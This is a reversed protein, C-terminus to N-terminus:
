GLYGVTVLPTSGLPPGGHMVDLIIWVIIALILFLVYFQVWRPLYPKGTGSKGSRGVGASGQQEPADHERTTTM